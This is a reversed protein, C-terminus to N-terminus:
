NDFLDHKIIEALLINILILPISTPRFSPLGADQVRLLFREGPAPIAGM